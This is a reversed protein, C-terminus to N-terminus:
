LMRELLHDLRDAQGRIDAALVRVGEDYAHDADKV